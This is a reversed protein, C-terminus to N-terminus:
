DDGADVHVGGILKGSKPLLPRALPMELRLGQNPM